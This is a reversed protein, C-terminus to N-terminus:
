WRGRAGAGASDTGGGCFSVMAANAPTAASPRCVNQEPTLRLKLSCKSQVPAGHATPVNLAKLACVTIEVVSNPTLCCQEGAVRLHGGVRGDNLSDLPLNDGDPSSSTARSAAASAAVGSSCRCICLSSAHSFVLVRRSPRCLPSVVVGVGVAVVVVIAVITLVVVMVVVVASAVAVLQLQPREARTTTPQAIGAVPSCVAKM